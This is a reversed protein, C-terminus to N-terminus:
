IESRDQEAIARERADGSIRVKVSQRVHVVPGSGVGRCTVQLLMLRENVIGREVRVDGVLAKAYVGATRFSSVGSNAFQAVIVSVPSRSSVRSGRRRRRDAHLQM